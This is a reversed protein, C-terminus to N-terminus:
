YDDSEKPNPNQQTRTKTSFCVNNTAVTDGLDNVLLGPGRNKIKNAHPL